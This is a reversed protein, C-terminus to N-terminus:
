ELQSTPATKQHWRISGQVRALGWRLWGCKPEVHLTPCTPNSTGEAAERLGIAFMTRPLPKPFVLLWGTGLRWRCVGRRTPLCM